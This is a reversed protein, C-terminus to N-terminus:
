KVLNYRIAVFARNSLLENGYVNVFMHKGTYENYIYINAWRGLLAYM